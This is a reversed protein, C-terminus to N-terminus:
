LNALDRRSNCGVKRGIASCNDRSSAVAILIKHLEGQQALLTVKASIFKNCKSNIIVEAADIANSGACCAIEICRDGTGADDEGREVIFWAAKPFM